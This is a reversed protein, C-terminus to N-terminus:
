PYFFSNKFKKNGTINEYRKKSKGLRTFKSSRLVTGQVVM